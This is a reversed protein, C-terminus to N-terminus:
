FCFKILQVDLLPIINLVYSCFCPDLFEAVWNLFQSQIQVSLELLLFYFHSHSLFIKLVTWNYGYCNHFHLTFNSQSKMKVATLIALFLFAVLLLHQHYHPPLPGGKVTAQIVVQHLWETCWPHLFRLFSEFSSTTRPMHVWCGVRCVRAWSPKNDNEECYNLSQYLRSTTLNIFSYHFYPVCM